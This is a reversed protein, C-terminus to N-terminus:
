KPKPESQRPSPQVRRAIGSSATTNNLIGNEANGREISARLAAEYHAPLKAGNSSKHPLSPQKKLWTNFGKLTPSGGKSRCYAAFQRWHPHKKAEELNLISSQQNLEVLEAGLERANDDHEKMREDKNSTTRQNNSPQTPPQCHAEKVRPNSPQESPQNKDHEPAGENIDFVDISVLRAITGRNTKRFAVLGSKGLKACRSRYQQRTLGYSDHDGILAEGAQLGDLGRQRRARLAIMTLLAFALPDRLLEITFPSRMLKVFGQKRRFTTDRKM